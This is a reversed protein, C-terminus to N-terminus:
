FNSATNVRGGYSSYGESGTGYTMTSERNSGGYKETYDSYRNERKKKGYVRWLVFFIGGVLAAGGIGGVVGGVVAKTNGSLGSGSGGGNALSPSITTQAFGTTTPVVVDTTLVTSHVVGNSTWTSTYTSHITKSSVLPTKIVTKATLTAANIVTGDGTVFSNKVQQTTKAVKTTSVESTVKSGDKNTTTVKIVTPISTKEVVSTSKPQVKTSSPENNDSSTQKNDNTSPPNKSSPPTPSKDPPSSSPDPTSSPSNGTAAVARNYHPMNIGKPIDEAEIQAFSLLMIFVIFLRSAQTLM